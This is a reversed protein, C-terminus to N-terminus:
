YVKKFLSAVYYIHKAQPRSLCKRMFNANSDGIYDLKSLSSFINFCKKFFDSSLIVKSSKKLANFAYTPIYIIRMSFYFFSFYFGFNKKCQRLTMLSDWYQRSLTTTYVTTVTNCCYCTLVYKPSSTKMHM